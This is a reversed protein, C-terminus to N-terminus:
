YEDVSANIERLLELARAQAYDDSQRESRVVGRLLDILDPSLELKQHHAPVLIDIAQSRVEPSQDHMLVVKLASRTPTDAAFRRLGELAKLRVGANPDHQVSYLLADRIDSGSQDKLLDVSDVRIGPDLSDRAAALLLRRIKEDDLPGEFQQEDIQDIVIRVKGPGSQEVDRIHATSPNLVGMSITGGSRPGLTLDHRDILRACGFGIFVLFSGLAVQASWRNPTVFAFKPWSFTFHSTRKREGAEAAIAARLSQRCGALLDLPVDRRESNLATHWGKERALASQCFACENLHQELEEERAFDLEGYLYLSLNTQVDHCTM